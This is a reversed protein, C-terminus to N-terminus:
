QDGLPWSLTIEVGSDKERILLHIDEDFMDEHGAGIGEEAAHDALDAMGLAMARGWDQPHKSSATKTVQYRGLIKTGM